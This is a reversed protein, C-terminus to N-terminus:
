TAPEMNLEAIFCTIGCSMPEPTDDDWGENPDLEDLFISIKVKDRTVRVLAYNLSRSLAAM